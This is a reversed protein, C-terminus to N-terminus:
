KTTKVKLEKLASHTQRIAEANKAIIPNDGTEIYRSIHYNCDSCFGELVLDNLDNLGISYNTIIRTYDNSCNACYCHSIMFNFDEMDNNFIFAVDDASVPIIKAKRSM